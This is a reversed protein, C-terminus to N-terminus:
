LFVEAVTGNPISSFLEFSSDKERWYGPWSHGVEIQGSSVADFVNFADVLKGAPYPEIILRGNSLQAIRDCIAVAGESYLLNDATWSTAMKWRFVPLSRATCSITGVISIAVIITLFIRFNRCKM